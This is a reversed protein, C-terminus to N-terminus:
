SNKCAIASAIASRNKLYNAGLEEKKFLHSFSQM